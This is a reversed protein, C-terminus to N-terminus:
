LGFTVPTAEPSTSATSSAQMAAAAAPDAAVVVQTIFDEYSTMEMQQDNLFFTPTGSLERERAEAMDAMIKDRLVSSKMHRKFTEMDLGLDEAYKNFFAQPTASSSWEKQNAFLVDHYEFFKGQQGAAEAALAAQQAFQHIPLPFHRYEFRIKDGYSELLTGVVPQFSSCAPCQFDSYEVLTVSADPNGKIHATVTVGENNKEAAVSSFWIAGGFLIVTIAGVIIWPNKM